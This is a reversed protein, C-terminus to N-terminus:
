IMFGEKSWSTYGTSRLGKHRPEGLNRQLGRRQLMANCPLYFLPKEIFSQKIAEKYVYYSKKVNIYVILTIFFLVIKV